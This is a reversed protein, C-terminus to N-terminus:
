MNWIAVAKFWFMPEHFVARTVVMVYMNLCAVAKLALMPEHFVALTVVMAPM